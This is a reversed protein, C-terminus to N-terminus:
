LKVKNSWRMGIQNLQLIREETLNLNSAQPNVRKLRINRVWKDINIGEVTYNFPLELNGHEEYYSRALAYRMNWSDEFKNKWNIGIAKLKEEQELSLQAAGAKKGNRAKIQNAVWRGLSTGNETVYDSPVNLDGHTDYYKKAEQYSNEWRYSRVDWIMGLRNLKETKQENLKGNKYAMRMNGIWHGLEYGDETVYGSPVDTNGFQKQYEELKEAGMRFKRDNVNEWDMGIDELQRIQEASLHGATKETYVKRQASLWGGLKLGSATVYTKPIFLNGNKKYYNEAESYYINWSASLNQNLQLFLKRCDRLEDVIQFREDYRKGQDMLYSSLRKARELEEQLSDVSYLSDFNNVIDFIVPKGEAARGADLARGIQQLYLIPSVTPRLLIVGDIKEVHVGENLMDICFLLRLHRSDDAIFESFERSSEPNDYYVAYIHPNEDVLRFWEGAQAAMEEMHEKNACFVLYKSDTKRIHKAFVQELGDASELSRRLAELLIENEKRLARNQKEQVREELKKLEEQYSYMSIVYTPAPLIGQAIAETLSMESAICGDFLEQAMDRQNDLYRINTASLGLLKTGPCEALLKKVSKGWEPAGCRHFEDLVIYDPKKQGIPNGNVMLKTYTLFTINKTIAAANSDKEESTGSLANRMNEVQTKFIYGSPALWLIKQEPHEEALKFAIFSKGTGTPHIVAAKGKKEMLQVAAEYAHQNHAFLDLRGESKVM